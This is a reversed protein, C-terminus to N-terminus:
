AATTIATVRGNTITISSVKGSTADFNYTGNAAYTIQTQATAIGGALATVDCVKGASSAQTVGDTGNLNFATNARIKGSVELMENAAAATGISVYGDNGIRMRELLTGDGNPVTWFSLRGPMDTTDGASDPTGDVYGRIAVNTVFTSGAASYGAGGINLVRDNDQVVSPSAKSGRGKRFALGTGTTAAVYTDMIITSTYGDGEFTLNPAATSSHVYVSGAIDTSGSFPSLYLAGKGTALTAGSSTMTLTVEETADSNDQGNAGRVSVVGNGATNEYTLGSYATGGINLGIHSAANDVQLRINTTGADTAGLVVNNNSGGYDRVTLYGREQGASGANYGSFYLSPNITTGPWLNVDNSAAIRLLEVIGNQLTFDDEYAGLIYADVTTDYDASTELYLTGGWAMGTGQGFLRCYGRTTDAVGSRLEGGTTTINGVGTTDGSVTLGGTIEVRDDANNFVAMPSNDTYGIHSNDSNFIVHGTITLDGPMNVGGTANIQIATTDGASGIWGDDPLVINGSLTLGAFTPSDGTGLGISTRATAGSEAIWTTGNGVIFNGDTPTLAAIEDMNGTLSLTITGAGNTVAIQNATGTLTALVPDAGTSGIPLQGNTAAGLATFADTGSGLLIGHDTFTAAGSGGKGVVLPDAIGITVTGDGDDAVTIEDATGAIWSNLDTSVLQKSSDSAMLRSATLGSLGIGAFTPSSRLGFKTIIEQMATRVAVSSEGLGPIKIGPNTGRM